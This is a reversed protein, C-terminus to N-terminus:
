EKKNKRLLQRKKKRSQQNDAALSDDVLVRSGHPYLDGSMDDRQAIMRSCMKDFSSASILHCKRDVQWTIPTYPSCVENNVKQGTTSGTYIALDSGMDGDVIMGGFMNEYYYSEDNVVTFIQAQVGVNSAVTQPGSGDPASVVDIFTQKPLMCFVGDKFPTQYQNPTGCAGFSSHPWHVEYTQGVEMNVCFKWDFPTTFKEDDADYHNCQYGMDVDGALDRHHDEDDHHATPGCTDYDKCDYQGASFHEAGAHWHVNVPCMTTKYYPDTIPMLDGVEVDGIYGKTVNAGAQGLNTLDDCAPNEFGPDSGVCVDDRMLGDTSKSMLLNLYYEGDTDADDVDEEEMDTSDISIADDSDHDDGDHDEDASVEDETTIAGSSSLSYAKPLLVADVAYMTAGGCVAIGSDADFQPSEGKMNGPGKQYMPTKNLDCLTRSDKSDLMELLDGCGLSAETASMHFELIDMQADADLADFDASKFAEDTPVFITKFALLDAGTVMGCATSFGDTSCAVDELTTCSDEAAAFVSTSLAALLASQYIKM